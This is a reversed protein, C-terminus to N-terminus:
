GRPNKAAPLLLGAASVALGGVLCVAGLMALITPVSGTLFMDLFAAGAFVTAAALALMRIGNPKLSM